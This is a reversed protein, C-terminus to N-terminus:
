PQSEFFEGAKATRSAGVAPCIERIAVATSIRVDVKLAVLIAFAITPLLDQLLARGAFILNGM